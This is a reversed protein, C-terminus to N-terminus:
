SSQWLDMPPLVRPMLNQEQAWMIGAHVPEAHGAPTVYTAAARAPSTGDGMAIGVGAWQLMNVDNLGDGLALVNDRTLNYRYILAELAEVKDVGPACINVERYGPHPFIILEYDSGATGFHHIFRDVEERGSLFVEVPDDRLTHAIDPSLRDEPRLWCAQHHTDFRNFVVPRNYGLYCRLMVRHGDAWRLMARARYAPIGRHYLEQNTLPDFVSAGNHAIIPGTLGIQGQIKLATRWSRGTALVVMIGSDSLQRLIHASLPRIKARRDLLTGDLDCAILRIM